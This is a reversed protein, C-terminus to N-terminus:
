INYKPPKQLAFLLKLGWVVINIFIIRWINIKFEYYNTIIKFDKLQLGAEDGLDIRISNVKKGINIIKIQNFAEKDTIKHEPILPENKNDITYFFEVYPITQETEVVIAINKLDSDIDKIVINPDIKSVIGKTNKDWNYLQTDEMNYTVSKLNMVKSYLVGYNFYFVELLISFILVVMATYMKKYKM